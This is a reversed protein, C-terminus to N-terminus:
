IKWDIQLVSDSRQSSHMSYPSKWKSYNKYIWLLHKIYKTACKVLWNVAKLGSQNNSIWYLISFLNKMLDKISYYQYNMVTALSKLTLYVHFSVHAETGVIWRFSFIFYALFKQFSKRCRSHNLFIATRIGLGNLPVCKYNYNLTNWIECYNGSASNGVFILNTLYSYLNLFKGTLM